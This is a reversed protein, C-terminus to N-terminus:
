KVLTGFRSAELIVDPVISIALNGAPAKSLSTVTVLRVARKARVVEETCSPSTTLCVSM